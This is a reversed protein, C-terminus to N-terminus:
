MTTNPHVRMLWKQETNRPEQSSGALQLWSQWRCDQGATLHNVLIQSVHGCFSFSHLIPLESIKLTKNHNNSLPPVVIFANGKRASGLGSNKALPKRVVLVTYPMVVAVFGSVLRTDLMVMVVSSGGNSAAGTAAGYATTM